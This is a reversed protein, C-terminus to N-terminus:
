QQRVEADPRSQVSSEEPEGLRLTMGQVPTPLNSVVLREGDQIGSSVLVQDRGKFVIEVERIDLLDQDNMIWVTEGDRILERDIAAVAPLERGMIEVQVYSDILMQPLDKNSPKLALPDPVEILLRAMRGQEELGAALRVVRGVRSVGQGWASPNSIRVESGQQDDARPIEIWRLQSVPVLVEVWYIDTGVLMALTSASTVRTGLNVERSMVMANFPTDIETRQLDLRAQDLRAQAAELSAQLTELQPQRLMLSKEADSVQEGLLEYEKQAVLQNGQELQIEAQVKAVDSALRRIALRYDSPDVQLLREGTRFHGGPLFENSLSIIEGNVQPKLLVERSPKVTGMVSLATMQPGVELMQVNVLTANRVKIRPKAQPGSQMLM